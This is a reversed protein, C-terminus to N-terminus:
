WHCPGAAGRCKTYRRETNVCLKFKGIYNCDAYHYKATSSGEAYYKFLSVILM